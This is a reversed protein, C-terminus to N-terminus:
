WQWARRNSVIIKSIPQYVGKPLFREGVRTETIGIKDDDFIFCPLNTM